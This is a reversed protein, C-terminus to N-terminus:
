VYVIGIGFGGPEVIQATDYEDRLEAWLPAVEITPDATPAIDHFAVIGGPAVLPGYAQWDLRVPLEHHDADIFLWDYPAHHAASARANPSRTDGTVVALEVTGHEPGWGRYLNRNRHRDDIAVILAGDPAETLWHYLTGGDGAGLELV